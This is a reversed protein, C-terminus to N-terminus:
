PLSIDIRYFEQPPIPNTDIITVQNGNTIPGTYTNLPMWIGGALNTTFQPKYTRGLSLPHFFLNPQSSILINLVFVSTPNTADLGATYKFLNNQGTGDADCTACSLDSTQGLPHGFYQQTWWNPIGDGDADGNPDLNLTGNNVIGGQFRVSGGTSNITGNNVVPGYFALFSGNTAVISGNNTVISTFSLTGGCDAVIAGGMDVLVGGTVTGCGSLLAASRIRLGNAFSHSGGQLHYDAFDVGDGVVSVFAATNSPGSVAASGANLVGANFVLFGGTGNNVLLQDVSVTGGNLSLTGRDVILDGYGFATQVVLQGGSVTVWNGTSTPSYGIALYSAIVSGFNTVVLYNGPGSYGVLLSSSNSWVSGPDTVLAFNNSSSAGYGLYGWTDYIAGGNSVVLANGPGSYGVAFYNSVSDNWVANTGGVVVTFGSNNPNLGGANIVKGGSTVVLKHDATLLTAVTNSILLTGGAGIVLNSSQWLTTGGVLELTQYQSNDTGFSYSGVNANTASSLQFSTSGQWEIGVVDLPANTVGYFGLTANIGIISDADNAVVQPSATNFLFVGGINSIIGSGNFGSVLGPARLTGNSIVLSGVGNGVSNSGIYIVGSSLLSASNIVMQGGSGAAAGVVVQSSNLSNIGGFMKWIMTKGASDGMRFQNTGYDLTAARTNLTTAGSFVAPQNTVVLNDATVNGDVVQLLNSSGVVLVANGTSNTVTLMGGLVNVSNSVGGFGNAIGFVPITTQGDVGIRLDAACNWVSGPGCVFVLNSSGGPGGHGYAIHYGDGGCGIRGGSSYVVGGNSIILSNNNGAAGGSNVNFDSNGGNGVRIDSGNLVVAGPGVVM